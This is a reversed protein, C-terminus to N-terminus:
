SQNPVGKVKAKRVKAMETYINPGMLVAVEADVAGAARLDREIVNSIPVIGGGDEEWHLGKLLSVICRPRHADAGDSGGGSGGGGGGGHGLAEILSAMTAELYEHPVALIVFTASGVAERLDSTAVVNDPIRCEDGLYQSNTHTANIEDAVEQRRAWLRVRSESQSPRAACSAGVIRAVATGFSGSGVVAVEAKAPQARKAGTSNGGNAPRKSMDQKRTCHAGSETPPKRSSGNVEQSHFFM